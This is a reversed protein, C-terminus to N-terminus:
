FLYSVSLNVRSNDPKSEINSMQWDAYGGLGKAWTLTYHLQFYRGQLQLGAGELSYRNLTVATSPNAYKQVQGGDYFATLSLVPSLSQTLELSALVGHDGVGDVSTYARVGNVGGLTFQNYSELNRSAWQGRVRGVLRLGGSSNLPTQGKFAFNVRTYHGAPDQNNNVAQPYYGRLVGLEARVPNPSLRENDASWRLRLQHDHVESLREGGNRRYSDSERSALEVHGKFVLDRHAGVIRNLGLGLEKAEGEAAALGGLVSQSRSHTGFMSWRSGWAPLLGEYDARAYAVGESAQALLSLQSKVAPMGVTLGTLLQTRGYQRLGHNNVQVVGSSTQGPMAIAPTLTIVLDLLEPGVARLTAELEIPLDYSASDLVQDLALTDLSQGAKFVQGVRNQVRELYPSAQASGPALVRVSNIKPQLVQINLQQGGNVQVVETKAYAMYGEQAAREYFWGHFARLEDVSVARGIRGQWYRDITRSLVASHVQVAVLHAVSTNAELGLTDVYVVPKPLVRERLQAGLQEMNKQAAAPNAQAWALPSYLAGSLVALAAASNRWHMTLEDGM